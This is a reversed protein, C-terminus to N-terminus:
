EVITVNCDVLTEEIMKKVVNWDGGGLGCGIKPLGVDKGAYNRNIEQLCMRLADYDLYMKDTGAGYQTYCNLVTVSVKDTAVPITWLAPVYHPLDFIYGQIQGLKGIDGRFKKSELPYKDSENTGFVNNLACAIGSKQVCFANCGHGIVDFHGTLALKILNGKIIKM